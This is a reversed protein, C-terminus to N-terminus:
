RGQDRQKTKYYDNLDEMSKWKGIKRPNVIPNIVGSPKAVTTNVSTPVGVNSLYKGARRANQDRLLTTRWTPHVDRLLIDSATDVPDGCNCLMTGMTKHWVEAHQKCLIVEGTHQNLCGYGVYVVPPTICQGWECIFKTTEETSSLPMFNPYSMVKTLESIVQQSIQNAAQVAAIQQQVRDIEKEIETMKSENVQMRTMWSNVKTGLSNVSKM